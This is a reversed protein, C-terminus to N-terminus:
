WIILQRTLVKELSCRILSAARPLNINILKARWVKQTTCVQDLANLVAHRTPVTSFNKIVNCLVKILLTISHFWGTTPLSCPHYCSLRVLSDGQAWKILLHRPDRKSFKASPKQM